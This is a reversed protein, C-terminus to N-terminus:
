PDSPPRNLLKRMRRLGRDFRALERRIRAMLSDRVDDGFRVVKAFKKKLAATDEAPDERPQEM